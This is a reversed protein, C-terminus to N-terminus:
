LKPIKQYNVKRENIEKIFPGLLVILILSPYIYRYYTNAPSLVCFVISILNPILFIYEKKKNIITIFAFISLWTIIGINLILGLPSCEFAVEYGNLVNRVIELNNYHYDFGFTPLVPNLKHYVKWKSEFPYFYGTVNNITADFYINPYKILGCGWVKFYNLIDQFGSDKNFSNKIPDALDEDYDKALNDYDLIKRIVKEEEKTFPYNNIKAVRATQQFPISLPERISTGSIGLSPLLIKTFSLYSVISLIFITIIGAKKQRSLLFPITIIVIFFGNNRFLSVLFGSLFLDLYDHISHEKQHTYDYVKLSFLLLFAAYLTDKVLTISYYGFLPVVGVVILTWFAYRPNIKIKIAYSIVYSYVIIIICFQWFTNLFLGFNFNGLLYGIKTMGGLLLTHIIPNFNTLTSESIPNIADLYRTHIGMVEKIQNANDYNIIGPYYSILYIGYCLSLFICSYLFPNKQFKLIILSSSNSFKKRLLKLLYYIITKIFYYFGGMRVLSTLFNIFNGFFLKSSSTLDYSYCLTFIFSIIVTLILYKKELVINHYLKKYFLFLGLFLLSIIIYIVINNSAIKLYLDNLLTFYINIYQYISFTTLLSLIISKLTNKM